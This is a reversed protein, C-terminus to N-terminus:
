QDQKPISAKLFVRKARRKQRCLDQNILVFTIKVKEISWLYYSYEFETYRLHLLHRGNYHPMSLTTTEM